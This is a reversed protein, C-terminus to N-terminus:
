PTTTPAMVVGSACVAYLNLTGTYPPDEAIVSAGWGGLDTRPISTKLDLGQNSVISAGGSIASKGDPCSVTTGSLDGPSSFDYDTSESVVEFDTVVGQPSFYGVVDVIVHVIGFQNRIRIFGDDGIATTIGNPLAEGDVWNLSSTGPNDGEDWVTLFSPQNGGVVTVNLQVASADAPVGHEGSLKLQITQGATLPNGGTIDGSERTDLARQQPQVPVFAAGSSGNGAAGLASVQSFVIGGAAGATLAILAVILRERM